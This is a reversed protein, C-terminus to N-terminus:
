QQFAKLMHDRPATEIEAWMTTQLGHTRIRVAHNKRYRRGFRDTGQEERLAKAMDDALYLVPDIKPVALLGNSLAWQVVKYPTDPIGGHEKQYRHFLRQFEESKTAM